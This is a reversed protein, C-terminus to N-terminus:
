NEQEALYNALGEGMSFCSPIIRLAAQAYFDASIGRGAFFLNEYDASMLSEIPLQYERFVQELIAGEKKESHVDVPYNSVLVPKTFCKGSKLDDITYVYKGLARKSVRIGVEPAISSIYANEFGKLYAKCFELIRLIAQRASKLGESLKFMDNSGIEEVFRPCNFAVSNPMGPITFLQFYARDSDRLIGKQVAEKFLPTLAWDKDWTCATSLHIENETLMSSTANRDNDLETIFGEFEKLNVGSAIFRLSYPQKRNEDDIFRCNLNQCIEQNGTADIVYRTEIYESLVAGGEKKNNLVTEIPESLDIVNINQVSSVNLSKIHSNEIEIQTVNACFIVKVGANTLLKDLAIKALEPNFWGQNGDSYTIQGGLAKLEALFKNFFKTNIQNQSSKMAPLVLAGTMSGGLYSNKEVILTKLGKKASIYAAACGATGGGIIVVDYKM